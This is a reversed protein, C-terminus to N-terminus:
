FYYPHHNILYTFYPINYPYPQLHNIHLRKTPTTVLATNATNTIDFYSRNSLELNLILHLINKSPQKKYISFNNKTQLM